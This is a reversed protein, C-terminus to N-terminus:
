AVSGQDVTKELLKSVPEERSPQEIGQRYIGESHGYAKPHPVYYDVIDLFTVPFQERCRLFLLIHVFRYTIHMLMGRLHKESNPVFTWPWRGMIVVFEQSVSCFMPAPVPSAKRSCLSIWPRGTRVVLYSDLYQVHLPPYVFLVMAHKDGYARFHGQGTISSLISEDTADM